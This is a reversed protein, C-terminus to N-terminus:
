RRPLAKRPPPPLALPQYTEQDCGDVVISRRVEIIAGRGVLVAYKPAPETSTVCFVYDGWQNDHTPRLVSIAPAGTLKATAFATTALTTLKDGEPPAHPDPAAVATVEPTGPASGSKLFNLSSCGAVALCAALLASGAALLRGAGSAGPVDGHM